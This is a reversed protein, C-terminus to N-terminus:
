SERIKIVKDFPFEKVENESTQIAVKLVGESSRSIEKVIGKYNKDSSDKEDIEVSKGILAAGNLLNMGESPFNSSDYFDEISVVDEMSFQKIKEVPKGDADKDYGVLVSLKIEDGTKIVNTVQGAYLNGMDDYKRLVVGKGILSNAGSLKMSGNLNAMQELGAFQAMQAVYETGDKANTPDQNSLEASLIKLFANKDMDQGPKVIRTGRSTKTSNIENVLDKITQNQSDNNVTGAM